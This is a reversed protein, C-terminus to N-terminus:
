VFSRGSEVRQNNSHSSYNLCQSSLLAVEDQDTESNIEIGLAASLQKQFVHNQSFNLRSLYMDLELIDTALLVQEQHDKTKIACFNSLKMALKLLTSAM